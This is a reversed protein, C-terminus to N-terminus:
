PTGMHRRLAKRRLHNKLSVKELGERLLDSDHLPGYILKHSGRASRLFLGRVAATEEGTEGNCGKGMVFSPHINSVYGGM